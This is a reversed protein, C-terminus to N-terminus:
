RELLAKLRAQGEGALTALAAATDRRLAFLGPLDGPRRLLGALVAGIRPRGEADLANAALVPLARNATDAVARIAHVPVGAAAGARAVRHTEMDVAAAGTARHLGAKEAVTMVALDSGLLLPGEPAALARTEGEDIVAGAALLHGPALAPDLGGAIGWSVLARCGAAVMRRAEAEAREPRAGSVAILLQPDEALPGLARLESRMGCVLGVVPRSVDGM